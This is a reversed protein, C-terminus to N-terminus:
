PVHGRTAYAQGELQSGGLPTHCVVDSRPGEVPVRAGLAELHPPAGYSHWQGWEHTIFRRRGEKYPTRAAWHHDSEWDPGLRPLLQSTWPVRYLRLACTTTLKDLYFYVLPVRM